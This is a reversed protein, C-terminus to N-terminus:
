QLIFSHADLKTLKSLYIYQSARDAFRWYKVYNVNPAKVLPSVNSYTIAHAIVATHIPRQYLIFVTLFVKRIVTWYYMHMLLFWYIKHSLFTRNNCSINSNPTYFKIRLHVM